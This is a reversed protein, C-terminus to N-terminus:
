IIIYFILNKNFFLMFYFLIMDFYVIGIYKKIVACFVAGKCLCNKM